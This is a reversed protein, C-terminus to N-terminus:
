AALNRNVYACYDAYTFRRGVEQDSHPDFVAPIEELRCIVIQSDACSRNLKGKYDRLDLAIDMYEGDLLYDAYCCRENDLWVLECELIMKM